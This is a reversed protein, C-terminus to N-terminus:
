SRTYVLGIDGVDEMIFTVEVFVHGQPLYKEPVRHVTEKTSQKGEASTVSVVLYNKLIKCTIKLLYPLM